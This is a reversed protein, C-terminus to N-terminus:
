CAPNLSLSGKELHLTWRNNWIWWRLLHDQGCRHRFFEVKVCVGTNFCGSGGVCSVPFHVEHSLKAFGGGWYTSWTHSCRLTISCGSVLSAGLVYLHMRQPFAANSDHNQILTAQHTCVVSVGCNIVNNQPLLQCRYDVLFIDVAETKMQCHKYFKAEVRM